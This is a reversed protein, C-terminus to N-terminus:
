GSITDIWFDRCPLDNVADDFGHLISANECWAFCIWQYYNWSYDSGDLWPVPICQNQSDGDSCSSSGRQGDNGPVAM